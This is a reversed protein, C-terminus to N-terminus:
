PLGTPESFLPAQFRLRLRTPRRGAALDILDRLTLLLFETLEAATALVWGHHKKMYYRRSQYFHKTICGHIKNEGASSSAGGIHSAYALGSAWVEYGLSEARACLDTEEWYLFFTPDFGDLKRLLETRILFVAGCVWGTRFPAGGPVIDRRRLHTGAYPLAESVISMPTPRDGTIQLVTRGDDGEFVTAPGLIGVRPNRELYDVMNQLQDPEIVADPNLFLTYPAVAGKWGMNCGKGFGANSDSLIVTAWDSQQELLLPTEDSSRNDVLTCQALGQEVARRAAALTPGVTGHSNFTVIVIAVHRDPANM